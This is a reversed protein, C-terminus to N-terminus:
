AAGNENNEDSVQARKYADSSIGIIQGLAANVAAAIILVQSTYPIDCTEGIVGYLTILAPLVRICIFKLIDYIKSNKFVM